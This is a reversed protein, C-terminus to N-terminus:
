GGAFPPLIDFTAGDTLVQNEPERVILGDLLFSSSALVDSLATGRRERLIQLLERANTRDPVIVVESNRGAGDRAAAFYRVAVEIM